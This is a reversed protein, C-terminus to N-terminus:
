EKKKKRNIRKKIIVDYTGSAHILKLRNNLIHSIDYIINNNDTTLVVFGQKLVQEPNNSNLIDTTNKIRERYELLKNKIHENSKEYLDDLKDNLLETPDSISNKINFINNKYRYLEQLLRDKITHLKTELDDIKKNKNINISSVVEGAISPTPARYNAVSDSLMNDVEHGVASIVYKTSKYIAEIVKKHSFGMLDELSGGGRTVVIIDINQEQINDVSFSKNFFKIGNSVNTPCRPGQVICDYVYVNGSFNNKKMVYLFDHLAAGDGSTIVGINKVTKPLPQRNNFYGAKEYKIKSEEYERHLDGVGFIKIEEGIFILKSSKNWYSVKGIIEVKDGNKNDLISQWFVVGLSTINDKLTLWTNRGRVNIGSIEGIVKVTKNKFKRDLVYKISDSLESVTLKEM